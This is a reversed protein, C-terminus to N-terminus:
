WEGTFDLWMGGLESVWGWPESSEGRNGSVEPSRFVWVLNLFVSKKKGRNQQSHQFLLDCHVCFCWLESAARHTELKYDKCQLSPLGWEHDGLSALPRLQVLWYQMRCYVLWVVQSHGWPYPKVEMVDQDNVLRTVNVDPYDSFWPQGSLLDKTKSWGLLKCVSM